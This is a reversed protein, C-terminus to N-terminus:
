TTKVTAMPSKPRLRLAVNYAERLNSDLEDEIPGLLRKILDAAKSATIHSDGTILKVAPHIQILGSPNDPTRRKTAALAAELYRALLRAHALQLASLRGAWLAIERPDFEVSNQFELLGALGTEGTEFEDSGLRSEDLPAGSKVSGTRRHTGIRLHGPVLFEVDAHRNVADFIVSRLERINGPWDDAILQDMAEFTIERRKTGPRQAEAERVFNEVLLPIDTPRERLLPLFISGGTRLRDLLDARFGRAPDDLDANTASLFRVDVLTSRRGGVPTVQREQLVRLVAAQVEPSMDAIEDLFLDGGDASAILGIKGDVGTATRPQIGFLESAFLNPTFVASNVSVLPGPRAQSAVRHLYGAMLEKGTGREGRILVNERHSAARRAERLALLISLSNGDVEGEPDPLLGHNWLAEELLSPGRLEDRAIFGLAGRRSFELSVEERPKSSLIFIPLEPFARHIADLLTLGFYSDPQDDGPRGEPMGPSCRNSEETVLGTYFCLDLLLMAWPPSAPTLPRADSKAVWGKHVFELAARLDNEITDGVSACAPTQARFFVANATPKLIKQRSAQAAADGTADQWLFNACLNERDVNRGGRVIRGFLDDFILLHPLM